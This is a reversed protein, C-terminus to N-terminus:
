ASRPSPRWRRIAGQVLSPVFAPLLYHIFETPYSYRDATCQVLTVVLGAGVMATTLLFVLFSDRDRFRSAVLLVSSALLMLAALVVWLRNRFLFGHLARFKRYITLLASDEPVVQTGARRFRSPPTAHYYDRLIAMRLAEPANACYDSTPSYLRDYRVTVEWPDFM